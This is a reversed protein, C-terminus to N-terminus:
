SVGFDGYIPIRLENVPGNFDLTLSFYHITLRSSIKFVGPKSCPLLTALISDLMRKLVDPDITLENVFPTLNMQAVLGAASIEHEHCRLWEVLISQLDITFHALNHEIRLILGTGRITEIPFKNNWGLKRRLATLHVDITGTDYKFRAGWVHDLVQQRTCLRNAHASLYDLLGYELNTLHIEQGQKRVKRQERDIEVSDVVPIFM